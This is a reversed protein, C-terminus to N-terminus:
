YRSLIFSKNKDSDNESDVREDLALNGLYIRNALKWTDQVTDDHEKIM